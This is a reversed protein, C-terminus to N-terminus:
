QLVRYIKFTSVTLELCFEFGFKKSFVYKKDTFRDCYWKQQTVSNRHLVEYKLMPKIYIIDAQYLLVKVDFDEQYSNIEV